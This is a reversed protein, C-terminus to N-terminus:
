KEELIKGVTKLEIDLGEELNARAVEEYTSKSFSLAIVVGRDKKV